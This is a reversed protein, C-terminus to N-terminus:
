IEFSSKNPFIHEFRSIIRNTQEDTMDYDVDDNICAILDQTTPLIQDFIEEENYGFYMIFKLKSETTANEGGATYIDYYDTYGILSYLYQIAPDSLLRFSNTSITHMRDPLAKWIQKGIEPYMMFPGHEIERAWQGKYAVFTNIFSDVFGKGRIEEGVDLAPSRLIAWKVKEFIIRAKATQQNFYYDLPTPHLFFLDDDMLLFPSSITPIQHIMSHIAISSYVADTRQIKNYRYLDSHSVMRIRTHNSVLFSPTQNDTVLFIRRIWPTNLEISRLATRLQLFDRFRRATNAGLQFEGTKNVWKQSVLERTQQWQADSGNVWTIVVDVTSDCSFGCVSQIKACEISTMQHINAANWHSVLSDCEVKADYSQMSMEVDLPLNDVGIFLFIDILLFITIVIFLHLQNKRM